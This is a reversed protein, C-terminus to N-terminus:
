DNEEVRSFLAEFIHKPVVRITDDSLRVLYDGVFARVHGDEQIIDLFGWEVCQQVPRHLFEEVSEVCNYQVAEVIGNLRYQESM